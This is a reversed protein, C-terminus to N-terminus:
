LRKQLSTVGFDAIFSLFKHSEFSMARVLILFTEGFLFVSLLALRVLSEHKGWTKIFSVGGGGGGGREEIKM